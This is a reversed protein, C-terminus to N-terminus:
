GTSFDACSKRKESIRGPLRGPLFESFRNVWYEVWYFGRFITRFIPRTSRNRCSEGIRRFLAGRLAVAVSRQSVRLSSNYRGPCWLGHSALRIKAVPYFVPYSVPYFVPYSGGNSDRGLIGGPIERPLDM